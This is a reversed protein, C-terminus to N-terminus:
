APNTVNCKGKDKSETEAETPQEEWAIRYSVVQKEGEGVDSVDAYKAAMESAKLRLALPAARDIMVSRWFLVRERFTLRQWNRDFVAAPSDSLNGVNDADSDLDGSNVQLDVATKNDITKSKRKARSKPVAGTLERFTPNM